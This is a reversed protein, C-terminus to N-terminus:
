VFHLLTVLSYDQSFPQLPWNQIYTYCHFMDHCQDVNAAATGLLTEIKM